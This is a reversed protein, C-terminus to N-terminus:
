SWSSSGTPDNELHHPIQSTWLTPTPEKPTTRFDTRMAVDQTTHATDVRRMNMIPKIKLQYLTNERSEDTIIVEKHTTFTAKNEHFHAELGNTTTAGIIFMNIGLGPVCLVETLTKPILEQNM